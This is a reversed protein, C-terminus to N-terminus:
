IVHCQALDGYMEGQSSGFSGFVFSFSLIVFCSYMITYLEILSRVRFRFIKINLFRKPPAVVRDSRTTTTTTPTPSAACQSPSGPSHEESM